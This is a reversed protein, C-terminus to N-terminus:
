RAKIAGWTATLKGSLGVATSSIAEELGLNAIRKIDREPLLVNLIAVEDVLGRCPEAQYMIQPATSVPPDNITVTVNDIRKEGNLWANLKKNPFDRTLAIHIWENAEYDGPGLFRRTINAGIYLDIM